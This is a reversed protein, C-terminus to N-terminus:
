FFPFNMCTVQITHFSSSYNTLILLYQPMYTVVCVLLCKGAVFKEGNERSFFVRDTQKELKTVSKMIDEKIKPTLTTRDLAFSKSVENSIIFGAPTNLDLKVFKALAKGKEGISDQDDRADTIDVIEKPQAGFLGSFM